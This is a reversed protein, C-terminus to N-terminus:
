RALRLMDSLSNFGRAPVILGSLVPPIVPAPQAASQAPKPARQPTDQSIDTADWLTHNGPISVIVWTGLWQGTKGNVIDFRGSKAYEDTAPGASEIVARLDDNIRLMYVNGLNAPGFASVVSMVAFTDRANASTKGHGTSIRIITSTTNKKTGM